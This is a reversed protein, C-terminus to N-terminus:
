LTYSYVNKWMGYYLGQLGYMGCNQACPIHVNWLWGASNVCKMTQATFHICKLVVYMSCWFSKTYIVDNSDM